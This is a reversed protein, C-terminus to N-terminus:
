NWTEHCACPIQLGLHGFTHRFGLAYRQFRITTEPPLRPVFTSITVNFANVFCLAELQHARITHTHLRAFMCAPSTMDVISCKAYSKQQGDLLKKHCRHHFRQALRREASANVYWAIMRACPCLDHLPVHKLCQRLCLNVTSFGLSFAASHRLTSSFELVLTWFALGGPPSLISSAQLPLM